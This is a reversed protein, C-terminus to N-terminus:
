GNSAQLRPTESAMVMLERKLCLPLVSRDLKYNIVALSALTKLSPDFDLIFLDSRDILDAEPNNASVKNTPNKPSTGGFFYVKSNIVCACQRRRPSPVHGPPNLPSWEMTSLDLRHLDNYHTEQIGNFGGFVYISGHYEFASHSRRGVPMNESSKVPESWTCSQTDFAAVKNCYIEHNTFMDGGEDCRGGFVYMVHHVATATHFDRWQAPEGHVKVNVWAFSVLDVYNMDNSFRDEQEEYGAFLYMRKNIVCASHGDRAEPASGSVAPVNWTLTEGDFRFLINCAGISDNRGGWLYADGAFEVATHGYRQYPTVDRQCRTSPLPLTRWTLTVTYFMHVDIPRITHYDDGTCYGGFSFIRDGIVVAAHNV